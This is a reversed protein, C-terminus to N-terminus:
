VQAQRKRRRHRGHNGAPFLGESRRRRSSAGSRRFFFTSVTLFIASMAYYRQSAWILAPALNILGLSGYTADINRM